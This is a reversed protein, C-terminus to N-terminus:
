AIIKVIMWCSALVLIAVFGYKLHLDKIKTHLRAGIQSAILVTFGFIMALKWDVGGHLAHGLMSMSSSALILFTNTGMAIRMPVGGILILLPVILGGGSIGIMGVVFSILAVVPIIFLLNIDYSFDKFERHWVGYKIKQVSVKKEKIMFYASILLFISFLVKLYEPPINVSFFGGMFSFTGIIASLIIALYWDILRNRLHFVLVMSISQLFILFVSVGVARYFEINLLSILTPLYFEGGGKGFMSFTLSISFIVATTVIIHNM